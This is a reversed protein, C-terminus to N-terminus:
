KESTSSLSNSRPRNMYDFANTKNIKSPAKQAPGDKLQQQTPTKSPSRKRKEKTKYENDKGKIILQDYRITARNGKKIEEQLKIKLEKRADLVGKPYDETVYIGTPFKKNNMLLQKRRWALTLKVLIPRRKDDQRKGLRYVDSLEWKDFTETSVESCVTNLTKIVLEQLNSNNEETENIGHLIINNQRVDKELNRIKAKLTSVEGKLLQNEGLLPKLKNDITTAFERTLKETQSNTQQKFEEKMETIKSDMIEKMKELLLQMQEM